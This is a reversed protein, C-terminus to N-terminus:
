SFVSGFLSFYQGEKLDDEFGKLEGDVISIEGHYMMNNFFGM